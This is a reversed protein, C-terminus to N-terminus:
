REKQKPRFTRSPCRESERAAFTTGNITCDGETETRPTYYFCDSCVPM